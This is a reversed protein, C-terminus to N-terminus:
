QAASTADTGTAPLDEAPSNNNEIPYEAKHALAYGAVILFLVGGAVYLGLKTNIEPLPPRALIRKEPKVKARQNRKGFPGPM